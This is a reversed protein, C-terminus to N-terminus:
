IYILEPNQISFYSYTHTHICIYIPTFTRSNAVNQLLGYFGLTAHLLVQFFFRKHGYNNIISCDYLELKTGAKQGEDHLRSDVRGKKVGRGGEVWHGAYQIHGNKCCEGLNVLKKPINPSHYSNWCNNCNDKAIIYGIITQKLALFFIGLRLYEFISYLQIIISSKAKPSQKNPRFTKASLFEKSASPDNRSKVAIPNSHKLTHQLNAFNM